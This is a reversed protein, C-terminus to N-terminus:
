PGVVAKSITSCLRPPQAAFSTPWSGMTQRFNPWSGLSWISSIWRAFTSERPEPAGHGVASQLSGILDLLDIAMIRPESKRDARDKQLRCDGTSSKRFGDCRFIHDIM